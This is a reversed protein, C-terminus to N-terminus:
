FNFCFEVKKHIRLSGHLIITVLESEILVNFGSGFPFAVPFISKNLSFVPCRFVEGDKSCILVIAHRDQSLVRVKFDAFNELLQPDHKVSLQLLGREDLDASPNKYRVTSEVAASLKTLRSAMMMMEETDPQKSLSGGTAYCSALVIATSLLRTFFSIAENKYPEVYEGVQM